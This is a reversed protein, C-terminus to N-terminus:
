RGRGAARSIAILEANALITGPSGSAKIAREADLLRTAVIAIRQASWRGLQRTVPAQEKWFLAKGVSAVAAQASAGGAMQASLRVLLQVRKNMARILPIGEIGEEGLATIESAVQASNGELVADVLRSLEGDGNGASIHDLGDIDAERPRDPAADLYLALKEVERAMVARDNAAIAVIRRAADPSLRLGNERGLAAVIREAEGADPPYSAFALAANHALALKLLASSPKLAGAIAVVPNGAADGSLLAEIAPMAEDGSLSVRIHRKDGFLSISAAEDALRAPDAKLTAGDLDVREADSGVARELRKALARSGADDPGYLLFLRIDPPVSDLAREIQDKSAKM